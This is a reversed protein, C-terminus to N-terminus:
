QALRCLPHCFMAPILLVLVSLQLGADCGPWHETLPWVCWVSMLSYSAVASSQERHRLWCVSRSCVGLVAATLWSSWDWDTLRFSHLRFVWFQLDALSNQYLLTKKVGGESICDSRISKLSLSLPAEAKGGAVEEESPSIRQASCGILPIVKWWPSLLAM